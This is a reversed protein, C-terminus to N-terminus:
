RPRRSRARISDEAVAVLTLLDDTAVPGAVAFGRHIVSTGGPHQDAIVFHVAYRGGGSPAFLALAGSLEAISGPPATLVSDRAGTPFARIEVLSGTALQHETEHFHVGVEAGYNSTSVWAVRGRATIRGAGPLAMIASDGVGISGVDATEINGVAVFRGEHQIVGLEDGATVHEGSHRRPSWDGGRSATVVRRAGGAPGKLVALTDGPRVHGGPTISLLGPATLEQAVISTAHEPDLQVIASYTVPPAHNWRASDFVVRAAATDPLTITLPPAPSDLWARSPAADGQCAISFLLVGVWVHHDHSNPLFPRM